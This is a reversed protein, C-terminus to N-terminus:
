YAVSNTAAAADNSIMWLAPSLDNRLSDASLGTFSSLINYAEELDEASKLAGSQIAALAGQAESLSEVESVANAFAESFDKGGKAAADLIDPIDEWVKGADALDDLDMRGIERNLKKMASTSDKTADTSDEMIDVMEKGAESNKVIWDRQADTMSEFKKKYEEIGGEAYSNALSKLLGRGQEDTVKDEQSARYAELWALYKDTTNAINDGFLVWSEASEEVDGKGEVISNLFESFIPFAEIFANLQDDDKGLLWGFLGAEDGSEAFKSMEEFWSAFGSETLAELEQSAISNKLAEGLSEAKEKTKDMGDQMIQMAETFNSDKMALAFDDFWDLDAMMATRMDENGLWAAMISEAWGSGNGKLAENLAREMLSLQTKWGEDSYGSIKDSKNKENIKEWVEDALLQLRSMKEEAAAITEDIMEVQTSLPIFIDDFTYDTDYMDNFSDIIKQIEARQSELDNMQEPDNTDANNSDEIYYQMERIM